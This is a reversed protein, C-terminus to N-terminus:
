DENKEEENSSKQSRNNSCSSEEVELGKVSRSTHSVKCEQQSDGSSLPTNSEEVVLKEAENKDNTKKKRKEYDVLNKEFLICDL